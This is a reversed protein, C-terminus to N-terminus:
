YRATHNSSQKIQPDVHIKMLSPNSSQGGNVKAASRKESAATIKHPITKSRRLLSGRVNLSQARIAQSPTMAKLM